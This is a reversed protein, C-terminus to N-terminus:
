PKSPPGTRGALEAQIRLVEPDSPEFELARRLYFQAETSSPQRAPAASRFCRRALRALARGDGPVLRVAETLSPLTDEAQLM